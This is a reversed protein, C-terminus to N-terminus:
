QADRAAKAANTTRDPRCVTLGILVPMALLVLPFQLLLGAIIAIAQPLQVASGQGITLSPPSV